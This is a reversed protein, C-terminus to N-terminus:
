AAFGVVAPLTGISLRTLLRVDTRDIRAQIRYGDFKLEHAWNEGTPAEKVLQCLQPKIWPPLEANTDARKQPSRAM